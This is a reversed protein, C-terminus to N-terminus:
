VFAKKLEEFLSKFQALLQGIQEKNQKAQSLDNMQKALEALPNIRLNSYTGKLRHAIRHITDYDGSAVAATLDVIDKETPTFSNKVIREFIDQPIHLNASIQAKDIPLLSNPNQPVNM